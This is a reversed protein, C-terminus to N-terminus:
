DAVLKSDTPEEKATASTFSLEATPDIASNITPFKVIMNKDVNYSLTETDAIKITYVTAYAYSDGEGKAAYKVKFTCGAYKEKIEELTGPFRFQVAKNYEINDVDYTEDIYYANGHEANDSDLDFYVSSDTSLEITRSFTLEEYDTVYDEAYIAPLTFGSYGVECPILYSVSTVVEGDAVDETTYDKAYDVKYPARNNVTISYGASTDKNGYM